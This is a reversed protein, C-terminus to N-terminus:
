TSRVYRPIASVPLCPCAWTVGLKNDEWSVTGTVRAPGRDETGFLFWSNFHQVTFLGLGPALPFNGLQKILAFCETKKKQKNLLQQHHDVKSRHAFHGSGLQVM